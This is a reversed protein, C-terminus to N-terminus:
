SKRQPNHFFAIYDFVDQRAEARTKYKRRRIRERKLLNIFSQAGANDWCNRRRSMSPALNNQETDEQWECSTFQFGQDTARCCNTKLSHSPAPSAVAPQHLILGAHVLLDRVAFVFRDRRCSASFGRPHPHLHHREVMTRSGIAFLTEGWFQDPADVDFEKNLTNDAVVAPSGGCSGPKKKYGIQAKIGALRALRWARNPSIDEGFDCLVDHLKRYGYATDWDCREPTIGRNRISSRAKNTVASSQRSRAPWGLM